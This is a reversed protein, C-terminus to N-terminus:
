RRWTWDHDSYRARLADTRAALSDDITLETAGPDLACVASFLADAVHEVPPSFGLVSNLTAPRLPVAVMETALSAVMAQDDEVLISGHQLLAGEARWQASGVLKHDHVVLEGVSPHDFCPATSLSEHRATSEVVNARVGLAALGALLLRNIQAYSERLDGAAEVPAVVSYTVERWHLIARGGTPRRVVAIGDRDLQEPLYTGRVRQNRGFSLTPASWGYVRLVWETSGRAHDMLAEDLAMNYAGDAPPTLLLRWSQQTRISLSLIAFPVPLEQKVWLSFELRMIRAWRGAPM